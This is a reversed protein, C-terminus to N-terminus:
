RGRSRGEACSERVHVTVVQTLGPPPAVDLAVLAEDVKMLARALCPRVQGWGRPDGGRWAEVALQAQYLSEQADALAVRLAERDKPAGRGSDYTTSVHALARGVIDLRADAAAPQVRREAACGLAGCAVLVILLAQAKVVDEGGDV